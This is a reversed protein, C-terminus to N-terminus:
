SGEGQRKEEAPKKKKGVVGDMRSVAARKGLDLVHAYRSTMKINTHRMVEMITRIDEGMALLITAFSHRLDHFRTTTPLNARVLAAKYTRFLTTTGLQTGRSSPFVYGHEEWDPVRREQQQLVWHDQLAEVITAPIPMTTSSKATKGDRIRLTAKKLDVDAWLLSLVEGRRLGMGLTTRFLAELRHGSVAELFREAEEQSLPEIDRRKTRPNKTGKM